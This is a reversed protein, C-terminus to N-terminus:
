GVVILGFWAFSLKGIALHGFEFGIDGVGFCALVFEFFQHGVGVNVTIGLSHFEDDGVVLDNLVFEFHQDCM